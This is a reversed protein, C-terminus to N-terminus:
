RIRKHHVHGHRRSWYTGCGESLNTAGATSTFTAKNGVGIIWVGARWSTPTKGVRGSGMTVASVSCCWKSQDGRLKLRVRQTNVSEPGRERIRHALHLKSNLRVNPWHLRFQFLLRTHGTLIRKRFFSVSANLDAIAALCASECRLRVLALM